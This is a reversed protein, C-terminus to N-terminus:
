TLPLSNFNFAPYINFNGFVVTSPTPNTLLTGNAQLCVPNTPDTGDESVAKVLKGAGDRYRFGVQLPQSNWGDKNLKIQMTMERYRTANRYVWPGLKPAGLKAKNTPILFGDLTFTSSNVADEANIIWTPVAAINKRVTVVRRGRERMLNEFPDGAANLVANGNRDYIVVEEFNEGDWEIQAPEFLPNETVEFTSDYEETVTWNAFGESADPGDVSLSVCWATFDTDHTRGLPTVSPHSGVLYENADAQTECTFQKVITYTRIGKTNKGSRKRIGNYIIAM